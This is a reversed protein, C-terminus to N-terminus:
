ALNQRDSAPRRRAIHSLAVAIVLAAGHFM